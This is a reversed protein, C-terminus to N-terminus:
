MWNTTGNLSAWLKNRQTKQFIQFLGLLALSHWTYFAPLNHWWIINGFIFYRRKFTPFIGLLTIMIGDLVWLDRWWFQSAFKNLFDIVCLSRFYKCQNGFDFSIGICSRSCKQSICSNSRNIYLSCVPCLLIQVDCVSWPNWTFIDPGYKGSDLPGVRCPIM